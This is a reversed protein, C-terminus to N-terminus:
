KKASQGSVQLNLSERVVGDLKSRVTVSDKGLRAESEKRAESVVRLEDGPTSELTNEAHLLCAFVYREPQRQKRLFQGYNFWDSATSRRDSLAADLALAHQYSEAAGRIDAQKEQLDALHVLALSELTKEGAKDAFGVAARYGKSADVDHNIAADADAV